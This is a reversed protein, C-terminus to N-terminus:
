FLLLILIAALGVTTGGLVNRQRRLRDNEKNCLSISNNLAVLLKQERDIAEKLLEIQTDKMAIISDNYANILIAANGNILKVNAKRIAVLSIKVSDRIVEGTSFHISDPRSNSQCYATSCHFLVIM